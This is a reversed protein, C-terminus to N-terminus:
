KLFYVNRAKKRKTYEEAIKSKILELSIDEWYNIYILIVGNQESKERKLEDRKSQEEFHKQGGFFEVAEFHQKGQYEIAINEGCVFVDYSMQGNETRLFYPRHQYIVQHKNFIQKTYEYVLEESKWKNQTQIYEIANDCRSIYKHPNELIEVYKQPFYNEKVYDVFTWYRLTKNNIFNPYLVSTKKININNSEYYEGLLDILINKFNADNYCLEKGLFKRIAFPFSYIKYGEVETIEYFVSVDEKKNKELFSTRTAKEYERISNRVFKTVYPSTTDNVAYGKKGKHSIEYIIFTHPFGKWKDIREDLNLSPFNKDVTKFNSKFHSLEGNNFLEEELSNLKKIPANKGDFFKYFFPAYDHKEKFIDRKLKSANIEFIENYTLEEVIMVHGLMEPILGYLNSTSFKLFERNIECTQKIGFYIIFSDEIVYVRELQNMEYFVFSYKDFLTEFVKLSNEYYKKLSRLFAFRTM